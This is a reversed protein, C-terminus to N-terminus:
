QYKVTNKNINTNESSSYSGNSVRVNTINKQYDYQSTNESSFYREMEDKTVYYKNRIKKASFEGRVALQRLTNPHMGIQEAMEPLSYIFKENDAYAYNTSLIFICLILTLLKMARKEKVKKFVEAQETIDLRMINNKLRSKQWRLIMKNIINELHQKPENDSEELLTEYMGDEFELEIKQM